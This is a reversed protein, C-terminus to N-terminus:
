KRERYKDRKARKLCGVIHIRGSVFQGEWVALCWWGSHGSSNAFFDGLIYGFGNKTLALAYKKGRLFTTYNEAIHGLTFLRGIPSIPGIQDGQWGAEFTL